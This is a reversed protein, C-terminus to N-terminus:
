KKGFLGGLLGKKKKPEPSEPFMPLEGPMGLTEPPPVQTFNGMPRPPPPLPREGINPSPRPQGFQPPSMPKPEFPSLAPAPRFSAAPMSRPPTHQQPTRQQFTDHRPPIHHMMKPQPMIPREIRKETKMDKIMDAVTLIGKAITKNEEEIENIKHILPGINEKLSSETEEELKMEEAAEKFLAMLSNISQTLNDLSSRFSESSIADKSTARKKLDELEHKINEITRHPMIEYEEDGAM